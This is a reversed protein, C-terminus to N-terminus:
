DRGDAPRIDDPERSGPGTFRGHKPEGAPDAELGRAMGGRDKAHVDRLASGHWLVCCFERLPLRERPRGLFVADVVCRLPDVLDHQEVGGLDEVRLCVGPRVNAASVGGVQVQDARREVGLEVAVAPHHRDDREVVLRVGRRCSRCPAGVRLRHLRRSSRGVPRGVDRKDLDRRGGPSLCVDTVAFAGSSPSRRDIGDAIAVFAHRFHHWGGGDADLLKLGLIREYVVLPDPRDVALWKLDSAEPDKSVRKEKSSDAALGVDLCEPVVRKASPHRGVLERM